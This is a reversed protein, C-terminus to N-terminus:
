EGAPADEAPAPAAEEVPAPAAPEAPAIEESPAPAEQITEPTETAEENNVKCATAVSAMLLVLVLAFGKKM